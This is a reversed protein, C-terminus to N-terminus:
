IPLAIGCNLETRKKPAPAVAVEAEDFDFEKALESLIKKRKETKECKLFVIQHEDPSATIIKSLSQMLDDTQDIDVLLFDANDRHLQAYLGPGSPIETSKSIPGQFEYQGIIISM